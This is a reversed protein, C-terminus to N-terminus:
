DDIPRVIMEHIQEGFIEAAEGRDKGTIPERCIWFHLGDRDFIDGRTKDVREASGFDREAVLKFQAPLINQGKFRIRSVM